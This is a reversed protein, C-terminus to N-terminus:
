KQQTVHQGTKGVLRSKLKRNFRSIWARNERAMSGSEEFSDLRVQHFELEFLAKCLVKINVRFILQNWLFYRIKQLKETLVKDIREAVECKIAVTLKNIMLTWIKNLLFRLQIKTKLIWLYSNTCFTAITLRLVEIM